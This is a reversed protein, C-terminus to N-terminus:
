WINRNENIKLDQTFFAKTIPEVANAINMKRISNQLWFERYLLIDNGTWLTNKIADDIKKFVIKIQSDTKDSMDWNATEQILFQKVNELLSPPVVYLSSENENPTLNPDIIIYELNSYKSQLNKFWNRIKPLQELNMNTILCNVNFKVDPLMAMNNEIRTNFQAWKSPFRIYTYLDEVADISFKISTKKMKRLIPYFDKTIVTGNTTIKIEVEPKIESVLTLIELVKKSLFPEGGTFKLLELDKINNKIYDIVTPDFSDGLTEERERLNKVSSAWRSPKENESLSDTIKMIKDSSSATCFICALNCHNSPKLDFFMPKPNYVDYKNRWHDNASLRPSHIKLDDKKWCHTCLDSRVGNLMDARLQHMEDSYFWEEATMESVHKTRGEVYEAANCCPFYFGRVDFFPHVFPLACLPENLGNKSNQEELLKEM